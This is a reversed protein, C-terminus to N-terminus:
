FAAIREDLVELYAKMHTHQRGLRLQEDNPLTFFIKNSSIFQWLKETKEALESREAIVREQHPQM